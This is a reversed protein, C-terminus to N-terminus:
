TFFILFITCIDPEWNGKFPIVPAEPQFILFFILNNLLIDTLATLHIYKGKESITHRETQVDTLTLRNTM